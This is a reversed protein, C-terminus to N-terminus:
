DAAPLVAKSRSNAAPWVAELLSEAAMEADLREELREDGMTVLWHRGTTSTARTWPRCPRACPLLRM